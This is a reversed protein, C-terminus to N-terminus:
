QGCIWRSEVVMFKNPDSGLDRHIISSSADKGAGNTDQPFDAYM